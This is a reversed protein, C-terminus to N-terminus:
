QRARVIVIPIAIRRGRTRFPARSSSM